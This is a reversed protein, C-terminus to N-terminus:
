TTAPGVPNKWSYLTADPGSSKIIYGQEFLLNLVKKFSSYLTHDDVKSLLEYNDSVLKTVLDEISVKHPNVEFYARILQYYSKSEEKKWKYEGLSVKTVKGSKVLRRIHNAVSGYLKRSEPINYTASIYGVVDNPSVVSNTKLYEETENSVNVSYGWTGAKKSKCTKFTSQVIDKSRVKKIKKIKPKTNQSEASTEASTRTQDSASGLVKVVKKQVSPNLLLFNDLDKDGLNSAILLSEQYTFM